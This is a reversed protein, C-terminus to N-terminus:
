GHPWNSTCESNISASVLQNLVKNREMELNRSSSIDFKMTLKSAAGYILAEEYAMPLPISDGDKVKMFGSHLVSVKYASDPTPYFCISHGGNVSSSASIAYQRPFGKSESLPLTSSAVKVIHVGDVYVRSSSRMSSVLDYIDSGDITNFIDVSTQENLVDYIYAVSSNIAREIELVGWRGSGLMGVGQPEGVLELAADRIDSFSLM